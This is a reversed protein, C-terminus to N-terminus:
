REPSGLKQLHERAEDAEDSEPHREVLARFAQRARERDRVELYTEGLLLRAKADVPSGDYAGLLTRLRGISAQPADRDLYFEAVYLEHKALLELVRDMMKRAEPVRPDDPFDRMYRRLAELAQRASGQDREYSPPALLWDSPIQEFHAQAIKFHAYPVEDHSPRFRIFQRYAEVAEAHKDQKMLCDAVRLESLAAFRSFPYERRIERFMPEANICKDARFQDLARLYAREADDAYGGPTTGGKQSEACAALLALVAAIAVLFRNM